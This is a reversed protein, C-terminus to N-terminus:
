VCVCVCVCLCVCSASPFTRIDKPSSGRKAAPRWAISAQKFAPTIREPRKIPRRWCARRPTGVHSGLKLPEGPGQQPQPLLQVPRDGEPSVVDGHPLPGWIWPCPLLPMSSFSSFPDLFSPLDEERRRARTRERKRENERGGEREGFVGVRMRMCISYSVIALVPISLDMRRRKHALLKPPLPNSTGAQPHGAQSHISKGLLTSRCAACPHLLVGPCTLGSWVFCTKIRM